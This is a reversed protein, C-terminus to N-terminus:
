YFTIKRLNIIFTGPIQSAKRNQYVSLQVDRPEINAGTKNVKTILLNDAATIERITTRKRTGQFRVRFWSLKTTLWFSLSLGMSTKLFRGKFKEKERMYGARFIVHVESKM